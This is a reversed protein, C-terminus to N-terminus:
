FSSLLLRAKNRLSINGNLLLRFIDKFLFENQHLSLAAFLITNLRPSNNSQMANRIQNVISTNNDLSISFENILIKEILWTLTNEFLQHQEAFKKQSIQGESKRYLLLEDTLNHFSGLNYLRSILNYDQAYRFSEDYRIGNDRLVDSRLMLASHIFPNYFLIDNVLQSNHSRYKLKKGNPKGSDDIIKAASGLLIIDTNTELFNYQVELRNDLSIDDADM